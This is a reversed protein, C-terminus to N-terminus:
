KYSLTVNLFHVWQFHIKNQRPLVNKLDLVSLNQVLVLTGGVFQVVVRYRISYYLLERRNCLAIPCLNWWEFLSPLSKEIELSKFAFYKLSQRTNYYNSCLKLLVNANYIKGNIISLARIMFSCGNKFISVWQFYSCIIDSVHLLAKM